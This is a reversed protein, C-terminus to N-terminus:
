VVPEDTFHDAIWGREESSLSKPFVIELKVRLEGFESPV